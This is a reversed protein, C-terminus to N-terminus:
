RSLPRVRYHSRRPCPQRPLHPEGAPALIRRRRSALRYQRWLFPRCRPHAGSRNRRYSRTPLCRTLHSVSIVYATLRRPKMQPQNYGPSWILQTAVGCAATAVPMSSTCAPMAARQGAERWSLFLRRALWRHWALLYGAAGARAAFQPHCTFNPWCKASGTVTSGSSISLQMRAQNHCCIPKLWRRRIVHRGLRSLDARGAM